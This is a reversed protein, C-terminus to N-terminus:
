GKGPVSHWDEGVADLEIVGHLVNETPVGAGAGELAQARRPFVNPHAVLIVAQLHPIPHHQPKPLADGFQFPFHLVGGELGVPQEDILLDRAREGPPPMLVPEV